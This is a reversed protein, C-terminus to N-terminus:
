VAPSAHASRLSPSLRRRPIDVKLAPSLFPRLIASSTLSQCCPVALSRKLSPSVYCFEHVFDLSRTLLLKLPLIRTRDRALALPFPPRPVPLRPSSHNSRRTFNSITLFTRPFTEYAPSGHRPAPEPKKRTKITPKNEREVWRMAALTGLQLDWHQRTKRPATPRPVNWDGPKKCAREFASRLFSRV